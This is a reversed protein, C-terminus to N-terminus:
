KSLFYVLSPSSPNHINSSPHKELNESTTKVISTLIRLISQMDNIYPQLDKHTLSSEKLLRLWYHTERAEKTAISMKYAFDRKSFASLVETVIILNDRM